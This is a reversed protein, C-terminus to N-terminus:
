LVIPFFKRFNPICLSWSGGIGSGFMKCLVRLPFMTNDPAVMLEFGGLQGDPPIAVYFM